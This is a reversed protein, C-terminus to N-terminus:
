AGLERAAAIARAAHDRPSMGALLDAIIPVEIGIGVHAPLAAIWARLPLEGAGPICRAFMAEQLYNEHRSIMPADCLQVYSLLDPDRAKLTELDALTADSRFFHMSDMQLRSRARGIHEIAALASPLSNIANPPAFEVLFLMGREIVMDALVALQDYTRPLDHEMSVASIRRTGLDAMIDLALGCDALDADPRVRFGEGLAVHVGTDRLVAKLERRLQPNSELSWAPYLAQVRYGFRELPLGQLALSVSACGLGAALQVHQVPPMGLLTLMDLGLRSAKANV